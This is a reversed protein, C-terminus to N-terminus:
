DIVDEAEDDNSSLAGDPQQQMAEALLRALHPMTSRSMSARTDQAVSHIFRAAATSLGQELVGATLLHLLRRHGEDSDLTRFDFRALSRVARGKRPRAGGKACGELRYQRLEISHAFCVSESPRRPAM